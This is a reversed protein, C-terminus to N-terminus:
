KVSPDDSYKKNAFEIFSDSVDLRDEGHMLSGDGTAGLIIPYGNLKGFEKIYENLRGWIKREFETQTRQNDEEFQGELIRIRMSTNQKDLISLSPDLFRQRLSDIVSIRKTAIAKYEEELEVKMKFKSYVAGANIYVISDQSLYLYTWTVVQSLLLLVISIHLLNFRFKNM